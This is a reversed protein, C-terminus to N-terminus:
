IKDYLSGAGAALMNANMVDQKVGLIDAITPALDATKWQNAYTPSTSANVSTNAPTNPGAMLCFVDM